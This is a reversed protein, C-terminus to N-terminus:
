KGDQDHIIWWRLKFHFNLQFDLTWRTQESLHSTIIATFTWSKTRGDWWAPPASILAQQTWSPQWDILTPTQKRSAQNSEAEILQASVPPWCTTLLRHCKSWFLNLIIMKYASSPIRWRNTEWSLFPAKQRVPGLQLVLPNWSHPGEIQVAAFFKIWFFPCKNLWLM